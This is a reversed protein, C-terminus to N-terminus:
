DLGHRRRGHGTNAKEPDCGKEVLDPAGGPREAGREDNRFDGPTDPNESDELLEFVSEGARKTDIQRIRKGYVHIISRQHDSDFFRIYRGSEDIIFLLFPAVKQWRRATNGDTSSPCTAWKGEGPHKHGFGEFDLGFSLAARHKEDQDKADADAHVMSTFSNKAPILDLLIYVCDFLLMGTAFARSEVQALVTKAKEFFTRPIIYTVTRM